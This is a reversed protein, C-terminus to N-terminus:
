VIICTFIYIHLNNIINHLKPIITSLFLFVVRVHVYVCICVNNLILITLFNDFFQYM